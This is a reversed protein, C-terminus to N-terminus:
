ILYREIQLPFATPSSTQPAKIAFDRLGKAMMSEWLKSLSISSSTANDLKKMFAVLDDDTTYPFDILDPLAQPAVVLIKSRGFFIMQWNGVKTLLGCFFVIVFIMGNM